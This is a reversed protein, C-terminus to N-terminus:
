EYKSWDVNRMDGTENFANHLAFAAKLSHPTQACGDTLKLYDWMLQKYDPHVCNEIICKAREKPSKGRLDAIGQDTIIVKVSHESHDVHSVMPVIPSICGGKQISPCSYISLYANRTFDGSGGIGNMMKNGVVHTSNVNGYIDAELATNLAILGLRRVVEPNNSIEIPRLVLKERFFDLTGYIDELVEETVTLSSGSAFSIRGKKMQEIVSDQIVETYMTFAPIDKDDGLFGLVANAVNGVGSQIPLFEKPIFGSKLQSALFKAVNCGIKATTEDIPTFKGVENPRHTNVVAIIKSPDVKLTLTGIRDKVSFIPIEKRYPPDSPEYLDHLGLISKPHMDNIEVIIKKALRAYTPANGVGATLLIDGNASLDAAEIIAVDIQGYTGYRLEQALQSLHADIYNVEGANIAKRLDKNSQYPTRFSMAKARALEGDCSDGTSAGTFLAIKFERGAKHEEEAYHAIATPLEKPAGSATFGSTAIVDGNKILRAAEDASMFNYAM